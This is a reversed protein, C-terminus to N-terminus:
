FATLEIQEVGERALEGHPVRLVKHGIREKRQGLAMAGSGDLECRATDFDADLGHGIM